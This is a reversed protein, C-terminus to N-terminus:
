IGAPTGTLIGQLIASQASTAAPDIWVRLDSGDREKVTWPVKVRGAGPRELVLEIEAGAALGATVNRIDGQTKVGANAIRILQDGLKLGAEVEDRTLVLKEDLAIGLYPDGIRQEACGLGALPLIQTYPFRQNGAVHRDFFEGCDWGSIARVARELDGPRLGADPYNVWRHLFRVVDDLTRQNRTHHRIQIDLLFGLAQGQDYYSIQNAAGGDWVIWSAREPALKGYGPMAQLTRGIGAQSEVFWNETGDRLGARQLIVDNYYSTVGEMWWLDKTRADTTYDFPGLIEPRIRKVNWLHFFEHATVSELGDRNGNKVSGHNFEITTSNLHELGSGGGIDTFGFLYVYREFPFDGVVGYAADSIRRVTEVWAARPMQEASPRKGYLVVEFPRGHLEFALTELEGLAIPCDVFVDYDPSYVTHPRDPHARHGSAHNWGAPLDFRLTHPLNLAEEVFLFTAPGHRMIAPTAGADAVNEVALDYTVTLETAGATDVQWTRDDCPLIERAAGSQDTATLASLKQQYQAYRYSGPRWLPMRLVLRERQHLPTLRMEMKLLGGGPDAHMTWAVETLDFPTQAPAPAACFAAALLLPASLRM